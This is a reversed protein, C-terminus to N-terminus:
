PEAAGEAGEAGEGREDVRDREEHAGVIRDLYGNLRASAAEEAGAERDEEERAPVVYLVLETEEVSRTTSRFLAGVVPISGLLPVKRVSVSADQQVLGGVVVPRGSPARVQTDVVRESTPPPNAGDNSVDTGRRSLTAAIDMTIMGDGSSWGEIEVVLGSTIERTVGLSNAEGTDADIERDRYRFTNTNRLEVRRGSLGSLTTDALVRAEDNSMRASLDLAFRYGLSTVVDFDLSLLEGVRALVATTEGPQMRANRAEPSWEVSRGEEYQVVLLQYRLQPVPKDIVELAGLLRRQTDASGSVMVVRPDPTTHLHRADVEPPLHRLLDEARIYGLRVVEPAPRRDLLALYRELEEARAADSRVVLANGGPVRLAGLSGFREPLGALVEEVEAHALDFRRFEREELPRDVAELFRLISAVEERSGSAVVSDEAPDLRLAATRALEGPLLRELRDASLHRLGVRVTQELRAQVRREDIDYVYYTGAERDYSASAASLIRELLEDFGHGELSIDRVERDRAGLLVYERKGLPFLRALVTQLPVRHVRASFTEGSGSLELVASREQGEHREGDRVYINGETIEVAYRPYRRVLLQALEAASVGEARFTVPDEPLRDTLLPPEMEAAARRAVASVPAERARVDACETKADYRIRVASVRVTEGSRWWFMGHEGAMVDLAERVAMPGLLQTVRGRVTEDTVVSVGAFDAIVLFVNALEEDRFELQPLEAALREEVTEPAHTKEARATVAVALALVTAALVRPIWTREHAASRRRHGRGSMPRRM